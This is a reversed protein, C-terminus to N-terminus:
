QAPAAKQGAAEEEKGLNSMSDLRQEDAKELPTYGPLSAADPQLAHSLGSHVYAEIDPVAMLVMPVRTRLHNAWIFQCAVAVRLVVCYHQSCCCKLSLSLSLSRLRM